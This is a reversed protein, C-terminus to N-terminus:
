RITANAVPTDFVRCWILVTVPLRPTRDPPVRYSQSGRTGKLRALVTGAGPERQQGGPVLHVFYDPGPQVDIGDLRVLLSGDPLRILRATGSARHDIGLLEARGVETALPFGASVGGPGAEPGRAEAQLMDAVPVEADNATRSVLTQTGVLLGTVAGTLLYGTAVPVALGRRRSVALAAGVLSVVFWGVTLGMAAAPTNALRGLALVGLGVILMTALLAGAARSIQRVRRGTTRRATAAM